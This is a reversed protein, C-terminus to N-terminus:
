RNKIKNILEKAHRLASDGGGLMRAIEPAPDTLKTIVSFTREKETYKKEMEFCEAIKTLALMRMPRKGPYQLLRGESDYYAPMKKEYVAQM